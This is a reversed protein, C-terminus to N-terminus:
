GPSYVIHLDIHDLNYAGDRRGSYDDCVPTVSVVEYRTNNLWIKSGQQPVYPLSLTCDTPGTENFIRFNIM